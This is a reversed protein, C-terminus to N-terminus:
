RRRNGKSGGNTLLWTRHAGWAAAALQASRQMPTPREGQDIGEVLPPLDLRLVGEGLVAALEPQAIGDGSHGPVDLRVFPFKAYAQVADAYPTAAQEDTEDASGPESRVTSSVDDAAVAVAAM